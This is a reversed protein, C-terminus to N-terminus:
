SGQGIQTASVSAGAGGQGQATHEGGGTAMCGAGHACIM